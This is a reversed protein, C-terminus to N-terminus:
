KRHRKRFNGHLRDRCNRLQEAISWGVYVNRVKERESNSLNDWGKLSKDWIDEPCFQTFGRPCLAFWSMIEGLMDVELPEDIPAVETSERIVEVRMDHQYEQECIVYEDYYKIM